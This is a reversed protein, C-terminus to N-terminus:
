EETGTKELALHHKWETGAKKTAVSGETDWKVKIKRDLNQHEM